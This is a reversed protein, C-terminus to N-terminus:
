RMWGQQMGMPRPIHTSKIPKKYIIAKGEGAGVLGYEAAEVPHSYKNKFPKDKYREDGAVQIRKYFFGGALGKRITKARPSVLLGPKGDILRSLPGALAERRITPDNGKIPSFSRSRM